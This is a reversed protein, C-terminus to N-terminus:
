FNLTLTLKAKGKNQKILLFFNKKHSGQSILNIINSQQSAEAKNKFYLISYDFGQRYLTFKSSFGSLQDKKYKRHM